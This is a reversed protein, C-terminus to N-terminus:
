LRPQPVHWVQAVRRCEFHVSSDSVDALTKADIKCEEEARYFLKTHEEKTNALGAPLNANIGIIMIIEFM